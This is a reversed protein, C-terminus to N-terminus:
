GVSLAMSIDDMFYGSGIDAKIDGTKRFGIKKYAAITQTNGKNVILTIQGPARKAAEKRVFDLAQKGIGKGRESSLVYLKSLYLKEEQPLFSLYGVDRGDLRVLFFQFGRNELEDRIADRSHYTMLMYRVQDAGIIPTYHEMWITQALRVITDIDAVARAPVITCAHATM